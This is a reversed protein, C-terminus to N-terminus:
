GKIAEPAKVEKDKGNCVFALGMKTGDLSFYKRSYLSFVM